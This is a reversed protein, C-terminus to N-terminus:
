DLDLYVDCQIIVNTISLIYTFAEYFFDLLVQCIGAFEGYHESKNSMDWSM